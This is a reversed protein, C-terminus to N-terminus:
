FGYEENDENFEMTNFRPNIKLESYEYKEFMGKEDEIVQVIPLHLDPDVFITIKPAYVNPM